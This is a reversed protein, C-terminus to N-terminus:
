YAGQVHTTGPRLPRHCGPRFSGGATHLEERLGSRLAGPRSITPSTCFRKGSDAFISNAFTRASLLSSRREKATWPTEGTVEDQATARQTVARMSSYSSSYLSLRLQNRRESRRGAPPDMSSITGNRDNRSGVRMDDTVALGKLRTCRKQHVRVDFTDGTDRVPEQRPLRSNWSLTALIAPPTLCLQHRRPVWPVWGRM